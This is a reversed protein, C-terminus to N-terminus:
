PLFRRATQSFIKLILKWSQSPPNIILCSIKGFESRVRIAQAVLKSQLQLLALFGNPFRKQINRSGSCRSLCLARCLTHYLSFLQTIWFNKLLSVGSGQNCAPALKQHIFPLITFCQLSVALIFGNAVNNQM